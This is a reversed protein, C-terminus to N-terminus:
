TQLMSSGYYSSSPPQQGAAYYATSASTMMIQEESAPISIWASNAGDAAPSLCGFNDYFTLDH